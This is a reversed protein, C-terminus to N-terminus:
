CQLASYSRPLTYPLCFPSSSCSPSESSRPLMSCHDPLAEDGSRGRSTLSVEVHLYVIHVSYFITYSHKVVSEFSNVTLLAPPVQATIQTTMAEGEEEAVASKVKTEAYPCSLNLHSMVLHACTGAFFWKAKPSKSRPSTLKSSHAGTNTHLSSPRGLREAISMSMPAMTMPVM